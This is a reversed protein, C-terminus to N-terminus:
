QVKRFLKEFVSSEVPCYQIGIFRVRFRSGAQEFNLTGHAGVKFRSDRVEFRLGALELNL